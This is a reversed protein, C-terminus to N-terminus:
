SSIAGGRSRAPAWTGPMPNASLRSIAETGCNGLMVSAIRESALISGHGQEDSEQDGSVGAQLVRALEAGAHLRALAADGGAELLVLRVKRRFALLLAGLEALLGLGALGVQGLEAGVGFGALLAGGAHALMAILDRRLALLEEGADALIAFPHAGAPGIGLLEALFHLRTLAADEFAELLM